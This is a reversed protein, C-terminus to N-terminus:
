PESLSRAVVYLWGYPPGYYETESLCHEMGGGEESTGLERGNQRTELLEKKFCDGVECEHMFKCPM